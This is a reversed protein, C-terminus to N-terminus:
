AIEKEIGHALFDEFGKKYFVTDVGPRDTLFKLNDAVTQANPDAIVIRKLWPTTKSQLKKNFAVENGKWGIIILTEVGFLYDELRKQHVSPMTFEDKDRYPLLMSPYYTGFDNHTFLEIKNKNVSMKGKGHVASEIGFSQWDVMDKLNGLQRFYLDYFDLRKDYLDRVITSHQSGFRWGWNWSGHPKFVCLPNNNVEVYDDLTSFPQRFYKSLFTELLTDQNFSIFAFHRNKRLTHIRQLKDAMQGYLNCNFYNEAVHRSIDRLVEQLYFQINIHRCVLETNCHDQIEKWDAELIEEVNVDEGQLDHLACLVGEYRQYYPKFIKRFLGNGLPPRLPDQTFTEKEIGSVCFASAGAGIIFMVKREYDRWQYEKNVYSTPPVNNGNIEERLAKKPFTWALERIKEISKEEKGLAQYKSLNMNPVVILLDPFSIEEQPQGAYINGDITFYYNPKM